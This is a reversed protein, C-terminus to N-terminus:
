GDTEQVDSLDLQKVIPSLVRHFTELTEKLWRFQERWQDRDRSDAKFRAELHDDNKRGGLSDM